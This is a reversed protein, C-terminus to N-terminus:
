GCNLDDVSGEPAYMGAEADGAVDALDAADAADVM